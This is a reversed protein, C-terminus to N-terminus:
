NPYNSLVVLSTLQKELSKVPFWQFSAELAAEKRFKEAELFLYQFKTFYTGGGITESALTFIARNCDGTKFNEM